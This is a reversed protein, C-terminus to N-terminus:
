MNKRISNKSAVAIEFIIRAERTSCDALLLQFVPSNNEESPYKGTLLYDLSTGLAASIGVLVRAGANKKGHELHSIYPTSLAAMEALQAQTIGKSLRLARIRDGIEEPAVHKTDYEM